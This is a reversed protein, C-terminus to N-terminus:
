TTVMRGGNIHIVEGTVYSSDDSALYVYAPALEYPQGARKMPTDKGFTAVRAASFSAPILPTWIPGPAVANVRIGKDVLSKSLSRTFSVIAGKTSSYDILTKEGEYATISATNIISSGYKLYPLAAKTIYFMSFINTRFTNELQENTINLISDQPFQVAANNVLINLNGFTRITREVAERCFGDRRVDGEITLCRQGLSEIVRKTEMADNREYLYVIAVDAKEKAFAVAAARGIGSDGGTILAVKNRLKGSAYYCPNNYIPRPRMVSEIGPQRNQHQPPFNTPPVPCNNTERFYPCESYM